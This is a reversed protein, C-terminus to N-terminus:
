SPVTVGGADSSRYAAEVLAMTQYADDVVTSLTTSSGELYRMLSAMSGIFADPFWSGQVPLSEWKPEQGEELLCYEFADPEGDPYNMLLGITAKIAGKTGEWKVYSEQHNLGFEHGHNTSINARVMDGYDLILNSRTSALATMKPHKVTKAYIGRPEGLFSRMLDLYHVSHYLIEVRPLTELFTWLHWPTYVTIRIDLDHLEGIAGQEILSRAALVYPAYRMQFNVAATLQKRHCLACIEKAQELNDGLPKQILVGAGDPLESLISLIANAPVAVDFVVEKPAHSAAEGLSGFVRHISFTEALTEAKTRDLDYIGAVDFGAKAYAPLHADKVIGGAGICIIPRAKHPMDPMQRIEFAAM